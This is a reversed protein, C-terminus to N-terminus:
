GIKGYAWIAADGGTSKAASGVGWLSATRPILALDFLFTSIPPRSWRGSATRHM